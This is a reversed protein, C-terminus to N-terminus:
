FSARLGAAFAIPPPVSFYDFGIAGSGRASANLGNVDPDGGSYNSWLWLNTGTLNISLSKVFTKSFLASPLQYALSVDRLRLWNIDKEIFLSENYGRASSQYYTQDLPVEQTNRSGDELVGDFVVMEGRNATRESLGYFTLLRNTANFVDGGKRIDFLFSLTFDKWNLRNTLGLTFDPQRNGIEIFGTEEIPYGNEGILLEGNENRQFSNGTISYFSQGPVYGARANGNLWTDSLYFEEFNGPLAVVKNRNLAFNATADWTFTGKKVPTATVLLEVGQNQIEGANVLQLIYGSAYSLRPQVIQDRSSVNYYTADIGLRNQFFRLELGAEYSVTTEPKINSNPGYFGVYFGGGTRTFASLAPQTQHAPADKGVQAFSARVKGFSLPGGIQFADSFVFGLSVSPYFFSNNQPPLTSSWDNRGTLTLFLLNRYDAKFEGFLGVLKRRYGKTAIERTNQDTNNISYLGPVQIDEAYWSDVRYTRNELNNGLTLSTSVDGFSKHLNLMLFSNVLHSQINYESMLGNVASAQSRNPFSQFSQPDLYTYGFTSYVDAGIRGTLNLWSLPDYSVSGNLLLRDTGDGVQNKNVSFYPNDFTDDGDEYVRRLTGNSNQWNRMDDTSPWILAYQLLSADGKSAREVDTRLYNASTTVNLKSSLQAGVNARISKRQYGTEPISGQQDLLNGSLVFNVRESGGSVSLNHTQMFGTQFFNELNDYTQTGAPIPAGWRQLTGNYTSDGVGTNYTELRDPFRTIREFRFNNNYNVAMQGAKGKKTTIVIAGNAADIGYLAAASPGKLVTVSEIDNPDLDAIRNSYDGGRNAGDNLLYGERLTTNDVPIGDVVFLPQNNGDLSTGGRIIISSSSGPSGSTSGVQVGAIRGQLADVMNPRVTEALQKGEVEQVAYGLERRKQERGFSTVVVEQLVKTDEELTVDIVSRAGIEQETTVYSVYSFTLTSVDPPVSLVYKGNIDTITGITTGKVLVSVGPLPDQTSADTVTGSVSRSQAHLPGVWPLLLLLAGVVQVLLKKQMM